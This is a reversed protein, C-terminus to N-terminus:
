WSENSWPTNIFPYTEVYTGSDGSVVSVSKKGLM